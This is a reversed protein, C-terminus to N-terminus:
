SMAELFVSPLPIFLGSGPLTWQLSLFLFHAVEQDPPPLFAATDGIRPLKLAFASPGVGPLPPAAAARAM